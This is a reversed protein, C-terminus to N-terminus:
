KKYKSYIKFKTQLNENYKRGIPLLKDKNNIYVKNKNLYYAFDINIVYSKHSRVFREDFIYDYDKINSRTKIDKDKCHFIVYNKELELYIIDKFSVSYHKRTYYETIEVSRPRSEILTVVLEVEDKFTKPEFPKPIFGSYEFRSATLKNQIDKSIYILPTWRYNKHTRVIEALHFGTEDELIGNIIFLNIRHDNMIKIATQANDVEYINIKNKITKLDEICQRKLNLDAEALLINTM